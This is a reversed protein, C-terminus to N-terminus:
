MVRGDSIEVQVVGNEVHGVLVLADDDVARRRSRGGRLRHSEQGDQAGLVQGCFLCRAGTSWREGGHCWWLGRDSAGAAYMSGTPWEGLIGHGASIEIPLLVSQEDRDVRDGAAAAKLSACHADLDANWCTVPMNHIALLTLWRWWVM